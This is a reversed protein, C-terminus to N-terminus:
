INSIGDIVDLMELGTDRVNKEFLNYNYDKPDKSKIRTKLYNYGLIRHNNDVYYPCDEDNM